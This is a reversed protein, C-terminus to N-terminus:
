QDRDAVHVPVRHDVALGHLSCAGADRPCLIWHESVTARYLRYPASGRLHEVTLPPSGPETAGPYVALGRGLDGDAVPGATAAMYVAQGAGEAVGSDFIVISIRPRRALNRSHTAEPASIWYFEAYDAAAYFVPSAWPQGAEDATALTMYRNADIVARAIAAGDPEAM